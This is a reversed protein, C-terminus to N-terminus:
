VFFLFHRFQNTIFLDDLPPVAALYVALAPLWLSLRIRGAPDMEPGHIGPPGSRAPGRPLLVCAQVILWAAGCDAFWRLWDFGTAFLIVTAVVITAALGYGIIQAGRTVLSIWLRPTVWWHSWALQLGVLVLGLVITWAKAGAPIAGVLRVSTAISNPLYTFVTNGTFHLKAVGAELLAVQRSSPLGYALVAVTAVLAPGAVAGIRWGVSTCRSRSSGGGGAQSSEPTAVAVLVMAWPVEVLIVDEHVLVMAAFGLGITCLGPLLWRGDRAMLLGLVALLVLALLDPRRDVVFFDILFPSAALLIAMAWCGSTGRRILLEILVVVTGVALAVIVDATVDLETRSPLGL